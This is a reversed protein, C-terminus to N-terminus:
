NKIKLIEIFRDLIKTIKANDISKDQMTFTAYLGDKVTVTNLCLATTYMQASQAFYLSEVEWAGPSTIDFRGLDSHELGGSRGLESEKSFDYWWNKYEGPYKLLGLFHNDICAREKKMQLHHHYHAALRWLLPSDSQVCTTSTTELPPDQIVKPYWTHFYGGVFNGLEGNAKILQRYNIPTSMTTNYNPYFEAWSLLFAAYVVAHVSIKYQHKALHILHLWDDGVLQRIHLATHHTNGENVPYDGRWLEEIYGLRKQLTTPLISKRILKYFLFGYDKITPKPTLERLEFPSALTMPPLTKIPVAWNDNDNDYDKTSITSTTNNLFYLLDNWFIALSKGDMIVHHVILIITCQDLVDPDVRIKLRWLPVDLTSTENILDEDCASALAEELTTSPSEQIDIVKSLSFSSLQSFHATPKSYDNLVMSLFPHKQVLQCIAPYLAGYCNVLVKSAQYKELFGIFQQKILEPSAAM